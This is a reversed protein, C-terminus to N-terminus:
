ELRDASAQIGLAQVLAHHRLFQPMTRLRSVSIIQRLEGLAKEFVDNVVIYDAETSHSLEAYAAKVRKQITLPDDQGRRLLREELSDISPPLIFIWIAQPVLSRIQRAGQWDIELIVDQGMQM